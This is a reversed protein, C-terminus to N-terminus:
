PVDIAMGDRESPRQGDDRRPVPRPPRLLQSQRDRSIRVAFDHPGSAGLSADRERSIRTPLPPLLAQSVSSLAFYATFGNRLSHRISETARYARTRVKKHVNCVLGRTCRADPM